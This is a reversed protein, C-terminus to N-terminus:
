AKYIRHMNYVKTYTMYGTQLKTPKVVLCEYNKYKKFLAYNLIHLIVLKYNPLYDSPIDPM